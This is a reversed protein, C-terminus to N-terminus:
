RPQDYWGDEQRRQHILHWAEGAYVVGYQTLEPDKMNGEAKIVINLQEVEKAKSALTEVNSKAENFNEYFLLGYRKPTHNEIPKGVAKATQEKLEFKELGSSAKKQGGGSRTRRRPNNKGKRNSNGTRKSPGGGHKKRSSDGSRGRAKKNGGGGSRSSKPSDTKDKDNSSSTSSNRSNM